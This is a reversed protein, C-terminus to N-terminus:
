RLPSYCYLPSRHEKFQIWIWLNAQLRSDFSKLKFFDDFSPTNPTRFILNTVSQLHRVKLARFVEEVLQSQDYIFQWRGIIRNVVFVHNNTNDASSSAVAAARRPSIHMVLSCCCCCSFFCAPSLHEAPSSQSKHKKRIWTSLCKIWLALPPPPLLRRVWGCNM